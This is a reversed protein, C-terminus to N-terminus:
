KQSACFIFGVIEEPITGWGPLYMSTSKSIYESASLYLQAQETSQAISWRIFAGEPDERLLMTEVFSEYGSREILLYGPDSPYIGLPLAGSGPTKYQIKASSDSLFTSIQGHILASIEMIRTPSLEAIEHLDVSSSEAAYFYEQTGNGSQRGAILKDASRIFIYSDDGVKCSCTTFAFSSPLEPYNILMQSVFNQLNEANKQNSLYAICIILGVAIAIVIAVFVIMRKTSLTFVDRLM